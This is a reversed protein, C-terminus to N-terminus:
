VFFFDSATFDTNQLEQLSNIDTFRAISHASDPGDVYLLSAVGVTKNFYIILDGAEENQAAAVADAGTAFRQDTLIMVAEGNSGAAAGKFFSSASGGPTGDEDGGDIFNAGVADSGLGPVDFTLTDHEPDFDTISAFARGTGAALAVMPDQFKFAFTDAGNNGTLTDNGDGQALTDNGDGGVLHDTGLDSGKTTTDGNDGSLYDDGNGGFLNDNQSGGFLRDNGKNGFLSDFGSDGFIDDRGQDGSLIDDGALGRITDGSNTGDLNDRRGTGVITAM